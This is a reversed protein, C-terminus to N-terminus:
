RVSSRPRVPSIQPGITSWQMSALHQIVSAYGASCVNRSYKKTRPLGRRRQSWDHRVAGCTACVPIAKQPPSSRARCRCGGGRARCDRVCRLRGSPVARRGERCRTAARAQVLCAQSPSTPRRPQRRTTRAQTVECRRQVGKSSLMAGRACTGRLGTGEGTARRRAGASPSSMRGEPQCTAYVSRITGMVAARKAHKAPSCTGAEAVNKASKTYLELPVDGHQGCPRKTASVPEGVGRGGRSRSRVAQM